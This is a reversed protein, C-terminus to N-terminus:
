GELQHWLNPLRGEACTADADFTRRPVRFVLLCLREATFSEGEFGPLAKDLLLSPMKSPDNRLSAGLGIALATFILVPALSALRAM